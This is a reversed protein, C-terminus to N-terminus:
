FEKIVKIDIIPDSSKNNRKNLEKYIYKEAESKSEYIAFILYESGDSAYVSYTMTKWTGFINQRQCEYKVKNSKHINEIIRLKPNFWNSWILM